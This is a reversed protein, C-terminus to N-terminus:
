IRGRHGKHFIWSLGDPSTIDNATPTRRVQERAKDIAQGIPVLVLPFENANADAAARCRLTSQGCARALDRGWRASPTVLIGRSIVRARRRAGLGRAYTRRPLWTPLHRYVPSRTPPVCSAGSVSLRYSLRKPLPSVVVVVVVVVDRGLFLLSLSSALHRSVSNRLVARLLDYYLSFWEFLAKSEFSDIKKWLIIVGSKLM